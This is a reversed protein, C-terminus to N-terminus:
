NQISQCSRYLEKTERNSYLEANVQLEKPTMEFINKQLAKELVFSFNKHRDIEQAIKLNESETEEKVKIIIQQLAKDLKNNFDAKLQQFKRVIDEIFPPNEM